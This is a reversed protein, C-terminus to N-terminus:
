KWGNNYFLNNNMTPNYHNFRGSLKLENISNMYDQYHNVGNGESINKSVMYAMYFLISTTLADDPTFDTTDINDETIRPPKMQLTLIIEDTVRHVTDPIDLVKNGNDYISLCELGSNLYLKKGCMTKANIIRYANDLYYYMYKDEKLVINQTATLVPLRDYVDILAVNFLMLMAKADDKMAYSGLTTIKALDLLERITM